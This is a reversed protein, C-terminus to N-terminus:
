NLELHRGLRCISPVKCHCCWDTQQPRAQATAGLCAKFSRGSHRHMISYVSGAAASSYERYLHNNYMMYIFFTDSSDNRSCAAKFSQLFDPMSCLFYNVTLIWLEERWYWKCEEDAEFFFLSSNWSTFVLIFYLASPIPIHAIDKTKKQFM